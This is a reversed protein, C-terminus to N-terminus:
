KWQGVPGVCYGNTKGYHYTELLVCARPFRFLVNVVVECRFFGNISKTYSLILTDTTSKEDRKSNNILNPLPRRLKKM